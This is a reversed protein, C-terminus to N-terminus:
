EEQKSALVPNNYSKVIPQETLQCIAVDPMSM